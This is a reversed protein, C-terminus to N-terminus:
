RFARTETIAGEGDLVRIEGPAAASAVAIAYRMAGVKTPFYSIAAKGPAKENVSWHGDASPFVVVVTRAASRRNPAATVRRGAGRRIRSEREAPRAV